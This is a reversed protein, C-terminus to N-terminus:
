RPNANRHLRRAAPQLPSREQTKAWGATANPRAGDFRVLRVGGSGRAHLFYDTRDAPPVQTAFDVNFNRVGGALRSKSRANKTTPLANLLIVQQKEVLINGSERMNRFVRSVMERSAGVMSAITEKGPLKRVVQRGDIHVAMDFLMCEVRGYTDMLSLKKILRESDHLRKALGHALGLALEFNNNLYAHFAPKTIRISTCSELAQVTALCHQDDLLGMEGFFDGAGLISLIVDRGNGGAILVKVRGSLLVYLASSYERGSIIVSRAAHCQTSILGKLSSLHDDSLSGFLSIRRLRAITIKPTKNQSGDM